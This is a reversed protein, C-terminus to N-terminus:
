LSKDHEVIMKQLDKLDKLLRSIWKKVENFM